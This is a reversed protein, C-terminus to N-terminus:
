LFYGSTDALLNTGRETFLSISGSPQRLPLIALNAITENPGPINLNSTNGRAEDSPWGTVFGAALSNTATLNLAVANATSPIGLLGTVAFSTVGGAPIPTIDPTRTDLLRTPTLRAFLGDDTDPATADTFYGTVDALLHTGRDTFFKVTGAAGVPVIVTNPRTDGPGSLNINSTGPRPQDAAQM